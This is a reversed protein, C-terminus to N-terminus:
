QTGCEDGDGSPSMGMHTPGISDILFPQHNVSNEALSDLARGDCVLSVSSPAPIGFILFVVWHM